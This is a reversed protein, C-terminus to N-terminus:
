EDDREDTKPPLTVLDLASGQLMEILIKTLLIQLQQILGYHELAHPWVTTIGTRQLQAPAISKFKGRGTRLTVLSQDFQTTKSHLADLQFSMDQGIGM